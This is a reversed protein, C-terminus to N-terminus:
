PTTVIILKGTSTSGSRFRGLTVIKKSDLPNAGSSISVWTIKGTSVEKFPAGPTSTTLLLAAIPIPITNTSNSQFVSTYRALCNTASFNCVTWSGLPIVGTIPGILETIPCIINIPTLLSVVLGASKRVRASKVMRLLNILILPTDCTIGM